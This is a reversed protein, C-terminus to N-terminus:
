EARTAVRRDLNDAGAPSRLHRRQWRPASNQGGYEKLELAKDDWDTIVNACAPVPACIALSAGFLAASVSRRM